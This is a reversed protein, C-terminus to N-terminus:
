LTARAFFNVEANHGGLRKTLEVTLTNQFIAAPLAVGLVQGIGRFLQIFGTGVAM